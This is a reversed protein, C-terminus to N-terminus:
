KKQLIYMNAFDGTIRKGEMDLAYLVNDGVEFRESDDDNLTIVKHNTDWTYEGEETFTNSEDNGKGQYVEKMKYKDGSLVIETYIGSCDACPMTGAYTGEYNVPTAAESKLETQEGNQPNKPTTTCSALTTLSLVAVVATYM